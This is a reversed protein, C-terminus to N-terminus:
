VARSSGDIGIGGAAGNDRGGWAARGTASGRRAATIIATAKRNVEIPTSAVGRAVSAQSTLLKLEPESDCSTLRVFWARAAFPSRERLTSELSVAMARQRLLSM